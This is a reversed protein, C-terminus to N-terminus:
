GASSLISFDKAGSSRCFALLFGSSRRVTPTFKRNRDKGFLLGASPDLVAGSRRQLNAVFFEIPRHM